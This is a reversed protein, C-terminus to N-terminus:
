SLRPNSRDVLQCGCKRCLAFIDGRSNRIIFSRHQVPASCDPCPVTSAEPLTRISVAKPTGKQHSLIIRKDFDYQILEDCEFCTVQHVGTKSPLHLTGGCSGKPSSGPCNVDLKKATQDSPLAIGTARSPLKSAIPSATSPTTVPRILVGEAAKHVNFKARCSRCERTNTTKGEQFVHTDRAGCNPCYIINANQPTEASTILLIDATSEDADESLRYIANASTQSVPLVEQAIQRLNSALRAIRRSTIDGLRHLEKQYEERSLASAILYSIFTSSGLFLLDKAASLEQSPSSQSYYLFTVYGTAAIALLGLIWRTM